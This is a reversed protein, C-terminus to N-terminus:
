GDSFSSKEHCDKLRIGYFNCIDEKSLGDTINLEDDVYLYGEVHIYTMPEKFGYVALEDKFFDENDLIKGVWEERKRYEHYTSDSPEMDYIWFQADVDQMDCYYNPNSNAEVIKKPVYVTGCHDPDIVILQHNYIDLQSMDYIMAGDSEDEDSEAEQYEKSDSVAKKFDELM